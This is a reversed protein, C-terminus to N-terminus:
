KTRYAYRSVDSVFQGRNRVLYLWDDNDDNIFFREGHSYAKFGVYAGGVNIGFRIDLNYVAGQRIEM